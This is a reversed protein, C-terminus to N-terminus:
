FLICSSFYNNICVQIAQGAMLKYLSAFGQEHLEGSAARDFEVNGVQNHQKLHKAVLLNIDVFIFFYVIM